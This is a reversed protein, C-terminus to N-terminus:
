NTSLGAHLGDPEAGTLAAGQEAQCSSASAFFDNPLGRYINITYTNLAPSNDIWARSLICSQKFLLLSPTSFPWNPGRRICIFATCARLLLHSSYRTRRRTHVLIHEQSRLLFRIIRQTRNLYRSSWLARERESGPLLADTIRAINGQNYQLAKGGVTAM